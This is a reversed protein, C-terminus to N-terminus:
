HSYEIVFKALNSHSFLYNTSKSAHLTQQFLFHRISDKEKCFM